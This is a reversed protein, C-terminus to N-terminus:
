SNYRFLITLGNVEVRKEQLNLIEFADTRGLDSAFLLSFRTSTDTATIATGFKMDRIWAISM